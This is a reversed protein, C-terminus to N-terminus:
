TKSWTESLGCIYFQFACRSPFQVYIGEKDEISVAWPETSSDAVQVTTRLPLCGSCCVDAVVVKKFRCHRCARCSETAVSRGSTKSCRAFGNPLQQRRNSSLQERCYHVTAEVRVAIDAQRDTRREAPRRVYQRTVNRSRGGIASAQSTHNGGSSNNLKLARQTLAFASVHTQAATRFVNTM